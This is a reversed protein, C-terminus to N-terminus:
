LLNQLTSKPVTTIARRKKNSLGPTKKCDHTKAQGAKKLVNQTYILIGTHFENKGEEGLFILLLHHM